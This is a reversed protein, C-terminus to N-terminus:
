RSGRTATRAERRAKLAQRALPDPHARHAQLELFVERVSRVLRARLALQEMEALRDLTEGLEKHAKRAQELKHAKRAQLVKDDPNEKLDAHAQVAEQALLLTLEMQALVEKKVSPDVIM